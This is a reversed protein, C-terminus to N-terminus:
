AISNACSAIEKEHHKMFLQIRENAIEKVRKTLEEMFRKENTVGHMMEVLNCLELFSFEAHEFKFRMNRWGEYIMWTEEANEIRWLLIKPESPYNQIYEDIQIELQEIIRALINSTIEM